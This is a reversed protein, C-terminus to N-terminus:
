KLAKEICPTSYQEHASTLSPRDVEWPNNDLISELRITHYSSLVTNLRDTDVLAREQEVSREFTPRKM